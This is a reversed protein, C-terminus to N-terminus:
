KFIYYNLRGFYNLIKGIGFEPPTPDFGIENGNEDLIAVFVHNYFNANPIQQIAVFYPKFNLFSLCTALAVSKIACDGQAQNRNFSYIASWLDAVTEKGDKEESYVIRDRCYEFAAEVQENLSKNELGIIERFVYNKLDNYQSDERVINAMESLTILNAEAGVPLQIERVGTRFGNRYIQLIRGDSM